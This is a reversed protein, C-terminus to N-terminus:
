HSLEPTGDPSREDVIAIAGLDIPRAM